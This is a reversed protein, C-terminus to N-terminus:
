GLVKKVVRILQDPKFPKVFWGIAGAEGAAERRKLQSETTLFLVPMFRFSPDSRLSRTLEIGNMNPMNLDTIVMDVDREKLKSLADMGDEAEIVKYGENVLTLTIVERLSILDEVTKFSKAM